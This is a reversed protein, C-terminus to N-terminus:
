DDRTLGPMPPLPIRCRLRGYKANERRLSEIVRRELRGDRTFRSRGSKVGSLYDDGHEDLRVHERDDELEALGGDLLAGIVQTRVADVALVDTFNESLFLDGEVDSLSGVTAATFDWDEINDMSYQM